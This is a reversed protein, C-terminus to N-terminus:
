GATVLCSDTAALPRLEDETALWHLFDKRLALVQRFHCARDFFAGVRTVHLDGATVAAGPLAVSVRVRVVQFVFTLLRARLQLLCTTIIVRTLLCAVLLTVKTFFLHLIVLINLIYM